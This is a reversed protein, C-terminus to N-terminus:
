TCSFFLKGIHMIDRSTKRKSHLFFHLKSQRALCYSRHVKHSATLASHLQGSRREYAQSKRLRMEIECKPKTWRSCGQSPRKHIILRIVKRICRSSPFSYNTDFYIQIYIPRFVRRRNKGIYKYDYKLRIKEDKVGFQGSITM